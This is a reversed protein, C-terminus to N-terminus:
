PAPPAAPAAAPAAAALLDRGLREGVEELLRRSLDADQACRPDLDTLADVASLGASRWRGPDLDCRGVVARVPVGAARARAAVAVPAKGHLSQEDLGGEGTVVLDAAAIRADLDILDLFHEAGSRVEGGLLLAGFGIGGGAGAGPAAAVTPDALASWRALAQELLAVEAPGAGKQPGYVAAAGRAGLLPNDVDSAVVLRTDRLRADIGTLDVDALELLAAAGPPLDRGDPGALRGGLAQVLGAGGDSSATGGVALVITLAGRDLAARIATGVGRSTARLAAAGTPRRSGLGCVRAVEVVARGDGLVAITTSRIRGDVDEADIDVARGGAALAVEISGDGGDAVPVVDVSGVGARALGLALHGAVESSTLSGKFKDCAVLVRPGGAAPGPSLEVDEHLRMVDITLCTNM